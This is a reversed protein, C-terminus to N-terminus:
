GVGYLADLAANMDDLAIQGPASAAGVCSFTMSSGFNAGCVRSPMGLAGMSMTILPTQAQQKAQATASLLALVDQETQPMVAIKAIDAGAAVMQLLTDVMQAIPPTEDFNHYSQVVRLGAAKAQQTLAAAMGQETHLEVDLLDAQKSQCVAACFAAYQALTAEGEGGEKKRRYTVLLLAEGAAARLRPLLAALAECDLVDDYYDARWEICDLRRAALSEAQQVIADATTAVIPVIVKPRGAGISVARIVLPTM